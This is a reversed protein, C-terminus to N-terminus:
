ASGRVKGIRSSSSRVRTSLQELETKGWRELDRKTFPAIPPIYPRYRLAPEPITLPNDVAANLEIAVKTQRFNQRPLVIRTYNAIEAEALFPRRRKIAWNIKPRLPSAAIVWDDRENNFHHDLTRLAALRQEVEESDLEVHHSDLEIQAESQVFTTAGAQELRNLIPINRAVDELNPIRTVLARRCKLIVFHDRWERSVAAASRRRSAVILHDLAQEVKATALDPDRLRLVDYHLEFWPAAGVPDNAALYHLVLADLCDILLEIQDEAWGTELIANKARDLGGFHILTLNARDGAQDVRARRVAQEVRRTRMLEDPGLLREWEKKAAGSRRCPECYRPPRGRGEYTSVLRPCPEQEIHDCSRGGPCECHGQTVVASTPATGHPRLRLSPSSTM